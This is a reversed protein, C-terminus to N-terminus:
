FIKLEGEEDFGASHGANRVTFVTNQGNYHLRREWVRLFVHAEEGCSATIQVFDNKFRLKGNAPSSRMLINEGNELKREVIVMGDRTQHVQIDEVVWFDGKENRWYKTNDLQRISKAVEVGERLCSEEFLTDAIHSAYLDHFMDSTSRAGAEDLLYVLAMNNATFSIGRPYIKANKVSVKDETQVEVRPKYVLVRGKPHMVALHKTCSSLAMCSDQADNILRIAGNSSIDVVVGFNLQFSIYGPNEVTATVGGGTAAPTPSGM